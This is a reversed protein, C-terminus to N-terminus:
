AGPSGWLGRWDSWGPVFRMYAKYKMNETDFDNDETFETEERNFLCMGQEADSRIFWADPDTLYTNVVYGDMISGRTRLANVANNATDNQLQSGLIRQATFQLATPVILRYAQLNIRLGRSDEANHIQIVQDELAQESLDSAVSLLNSQAGDDTAHDSALLAAGDGGPFNSDFARNYVNAAVIEKTTRMSFALRATRDMVVDEYLNDALEEKTVIFGLAYPIHTYRSVPGQRYTDFQTSTGQEKIPALGFGILEPTEEYAKESQKVEFLYNYLHEFGAYKLGWFAYIGPWLTKPASGTTIIGSAM